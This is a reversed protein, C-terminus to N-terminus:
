PDPQQNNERAQCRAQNTQALPAPHHFAHPSFNQAVACSIAASVFSHVFMCMLPLPLAPFCSPLLRVFRHVFVILALAYATFNHIM